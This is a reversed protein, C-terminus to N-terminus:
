RVAGGAAAGSGMAGTGRRRRSRERCRAESREWWDAVAQFVESMESLRQGRRQESRPWRLRFVVWSLASGVGSLLLFVVAVM